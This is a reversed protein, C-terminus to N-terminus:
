HSTGEYRMQFCQERNTYCSAITYSHQTILQDNATFFAQDLATADLDGAYCSFGNSDSPEANCNESDCYCGEFTKFGTGIDLVCGLPNSYGFIGIDFGTLVDENESIITMTRLCKDSSACMTEVGNEGICSIQIFELPSTKTVM